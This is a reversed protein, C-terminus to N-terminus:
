SQPQSQSLNNSGGGPRPHQKNTKKKRTSNADAAKTSKKKRAHGKTIGPCRVTHASLLGQRAEKARRVLNLRRKCKPDAM